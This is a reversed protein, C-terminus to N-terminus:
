LDQWFEAYNKQNQEVSESNKQVLPLPENKVLDGKGNKLDSSIRQFLTGNTKSVEM